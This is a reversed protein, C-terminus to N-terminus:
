SIPASTNQSKNSSFRIRNDLPGYRWFDLNPHNNDPGMIDLFLDRTFLLVWQLKTWVDLMSTCNRFNQSSCSTPLDSETKVSSSRLHSSDKVLVVSRCLLPRNETRIGSCSDVSASPSEYSCAFDRKKKNSRLNSRDGEYLIIYLSNKRSYASRPCMDAM